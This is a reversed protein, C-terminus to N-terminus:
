SSGPSLFMGTLTMIICLWQFKTIKEKLVIAAFGLTVIPYAATLPTVISIQGYRTAILVGLDGGAMMGMPLASKMWESGTSDTSQNEALNKRGYLWGYVGLTLCGGIITCLAMNVEHAGPLTYAYKILTQSAGWIVLASGAYAIWRRDTMKSNPDPPAYSLGICSMIVLAVGVYQIPSLVEGLFIRAFIVTTAPYAASLTGIITIPGMVISKYYLIWGSGDLISAAIGVLMSHQAIPDLPDPHDMVLFYGLNVIAKAAVFFLCFRAPSVDSIYKKVLGQGIGYLFLAILAPTLWIFLPSTQM